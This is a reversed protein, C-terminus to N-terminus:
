LDRNEETSNGRDGEECIPLEMGGRIDGKYKNAYSYGGKKTKLFALMEEVRETLKDWVALRGPRIEDPKEEIKKKMSELIGELKKRRRELKAPSILFKGFGTVELQEHEKMFHVVEKFQFSVVKEVIDESALTKTATKTILVGKLKDAQISNNNKKM